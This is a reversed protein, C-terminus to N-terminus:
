RWPSYWGEYQKPTIDGDELLSATWNNWAESRAVTDLQTKGNPFLKMFSLRQCLQNYQYLAEKKTM